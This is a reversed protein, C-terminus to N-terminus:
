HSRWFFLWRASPPMKKESKTSIEFFFTRRRLEALKRCVEHSMCSRPATIRLQRRNKTPFLFASKQHSFFCRFECFILAFSGSFNKCKKASTPFVPLGLGSGATIKDKKASSILFVVFSPGSAKLTRLM